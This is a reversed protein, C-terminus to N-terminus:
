NNSGTINGTLNAFTYNSSIGINALVNAGNLMPNSGNNLTALGKTQALIVAGSGEYNTGSALTFPTASCFTQGTYNQVELNAVTIAPSGTASFYPIGSIYTYTGTTAVTLVVNSTILTPASNLNDKVFGAYNTNGSTSHV